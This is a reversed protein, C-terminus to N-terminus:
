AAAATPGARRGAEGAGEDEDTRASAEAREAAARITDALVRRAEAVGRRGVERTHADLRAVVRRSEMLAM